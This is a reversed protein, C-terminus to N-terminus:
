EDVCAASANMGGAGAAAMEAAEQAADKYDNVESNSGCFEQAAVTQQAGNVEFTYTCTTCKEGCSTFAFAAAVIAVLILKKM